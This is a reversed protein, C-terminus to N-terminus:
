AKVVQRTNAIAVRAARVEESLLRLVQLGLSPNARILEILKESRVFGLETLHAARATM